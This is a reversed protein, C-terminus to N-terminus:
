LILYFKSLNWYPNQEKSHKKDRRATLRRRTRRYHRWKANIVFAILTIAKDSRRHVKKSYKGFNKKSSIENVKKTENM